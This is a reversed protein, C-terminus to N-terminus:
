WQCPDRTLCRAQEPESRIVEAREWRRRAKQGTTSARGSEEFTLLRDGEKLDGVPLWRLDDTLVRHTQDLCPSTAVVDVAGSRIPLRTADGNVTPGTSGAHCWEMELELGITAVNPRGLRHISGIGAFVDLATVPRGLTRAEVDILEALRRLISPSYRAPHDVHEPLEFGPFAEATTTM